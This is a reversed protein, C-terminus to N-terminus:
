KRRLFKPVRSEGGGRPPSPPPPPPPPAQRPAAPRPAQRPAPAGRATGRPEAAGGSYVADARGAGAAQIGTAILTVTVAGQAAADEGAGFIINTDPSVTSYIVEAASNVEFLTMDSPGTINWVIGTASSIDVDLLPSSRCLLVLPM